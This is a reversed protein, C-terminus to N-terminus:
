PHRSADARVRLDSIAERALVPLEEAMIMAARRVHEARQPLLVGLEARLGRMRNIAATRQEIFGQQVRHLSLTPPL